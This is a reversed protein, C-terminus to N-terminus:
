KIETLVIGAHFDNPSANNHAKVGVRIHEVHASINQIDDITQSATVVKCYLSAIRDLTSFKGEIRYTLASAALSACACQVAVYDAKAEIWGSTAATSENENYIFNTTATVNFSTFFTRYSQSLVAM